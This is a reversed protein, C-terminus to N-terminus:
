KKFVIYHNRLAYALIGTGIVGSIIEKPLQAQGFYSAIGFYIAAYAVALVTYIMPAKWGFVKLFQVTKYIARAVSRVVKRMARKFKPFMVKKTKKM